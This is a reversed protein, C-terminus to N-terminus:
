VGGEIQTASTGWPLQKTGPTHRSRAVDSADPAMAGARTAKVGQMRSLPSVRAPIWVRLPYEPPGSAGGGGMEEGENVTREVGGRLAVVAV